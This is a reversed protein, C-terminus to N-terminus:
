SGAPLKAPENYSHMIEYGPFSERVVRGEADLVYTDTQQLEMESSGYDRSYVDCYLTKDNKRRYEYRTEDVADSDTFDDDRWYKQRRILFGDENYTLHETESSYYRSDEYISESSYEYRILRHGADYTFSARSYVDSDAAYANNQPVQTITYGGTMDYSFLLNYIAPEVQFEDEITETIRSVRNQSDYEFSEKVVAISDPTDFMFLRAEFYTLRGKADYKRVPKASPDLMVGDVFGAFFTYTPDMLNGHPDYHGEYHWYGGTSTVTRLTGDPYYDYSKSQDLSWEGDSGRYVYEQQVGAKECDFQQAGAAAASVPVLSVLLILTLCGFVAKKMFETLSRM